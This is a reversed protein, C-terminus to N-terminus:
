ASPYDTMLGLPPDRTDRHKVFNRSAGNGSSARKPRGDRGMPPRQKAHPEIRKKSPAEVRECPFAQQLAKIVAVATNGQLERPHTRGYTGFAHILELLTTQEPPCSGIIRHGDDAVLVSLDQIAQMYGWCLLAEKTNPIRIHQGTGKGGKELKRCYNALDRASDVAGAKQCLGFAAILALLLAFAVRM